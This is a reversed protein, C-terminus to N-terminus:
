TESMHHTHQKNSVCPGSCLRDISLMVQLALACGCDVPWAPLVDSAASLLLAGAAAQSGMLMVPTARTIVVALDALPVPLLPLCFGLLDWPRCAAAAAAAHGATLVTSAM